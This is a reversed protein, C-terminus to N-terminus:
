EIGSVPQLNHRFSSGCAASGPSGVSESPQSLVKGPGPLLAEASAPGSKRFICARAANSPRKRSYHRAGGSLEMRLVMWRSCYCKGFVGACAHVQREECFTLCLASVLGGRILALADGDGESSSSLYISWGTTVSGGSCM